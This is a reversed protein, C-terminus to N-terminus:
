AYRSSGTTQKKKIPGQIPFMVPISFKIRSVESKTDQNEGQVGVNLIATVVGVGGKETDKTSSTIAVDFEVIQLLHNVEGDFHYLVPENSNQYSNGVVDTHPSILAGQANAYTQADKIGAIIEKLTEAIFEKLEM